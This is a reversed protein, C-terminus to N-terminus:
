RVLRRAFPVLMPVERAYREYAPGLQSRLLREESRARLYFSPLTVLLTGAMLVLNGTALCAGLFHLSLAAYIPHRVAAYPGSRIVEHGGHVEVDLDFHRGLTVAAWMAFAPGAVVLALGVWRLAEPVDIEPGPRAAMVAYPVWILYPVWRVFAGGVAVAPARGRRARARVPFAVAAYALISAVATWTILAASM